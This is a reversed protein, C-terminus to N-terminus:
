CKQKCYFYTELPHPENKEGNVHSTVTTVSRQLQREIPLQLTKVASNMIVVENKDCEEKCTVHM